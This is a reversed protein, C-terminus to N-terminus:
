VAQTTTIAVSASVRSAYLAPLGICSCSPQQLGGAGALCLLGHAAVWAQGVGAGLNGARRSYVALGQRGAVAIDAGSSSVAARVLPWNSALYSQPLAVHAVMLDGVQPDLGLVLGVWM